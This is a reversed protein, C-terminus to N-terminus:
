QIESIKQQQQHHHNKPAHTHIKHVWKKSYKVVVQRVAPTSSAYTYNCFFPLPGTDISSTYTYNCFSISRHRHLTRIYLQLLFHFRLKQVLQFPKCFPHVSQNRSWFFCRCIIASPEIDRSLTSPIRRCVIPSSCQISLNYPLHISFSFSFFPVGTQSLSATSIM